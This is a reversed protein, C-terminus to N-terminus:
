EWVHSRWFQFEKERLDNKGKKRGSDCFLQSGLIQMELLHRGPHHHHQQDTPRTERVRIQTTLPFPHLKNPSVDCVCLVYIDGNDSGGRGGTMQIFKVVQRVNKM